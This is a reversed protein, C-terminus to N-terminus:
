PEIVSYDHLTTGDPFRGNRPKVLTLGFELDEKLSPTLLIVARRTADVEDFLVYSVMGPRASPVDLQKVRERMVSELSTRTADLKQGSVGVTCASNGEVALLVVAENHVKHEYQWGIFEENPFEDVTRAQKILYPELEEDRALASFDDINDICRKNFEDFALDDPVPLFTLSKGGLAVIVAVVFM